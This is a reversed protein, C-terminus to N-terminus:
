GGSCAICMMPLSSFAPFDKALIAKANEYRIPRAEWQGRTTSRSYGLTFTNTASFKGLFVVENAKVSFPRTLPGEKVPAQFDRNMPGTGWWSNFVIWHTLRYRGPPVMVANTETHGDKRDRETAFPLIYETSTDVNILVFATALSERELTFNGAIYALSPQPKSQRPVLHDFTACGSLLLALVGLAATQVGPRRASM